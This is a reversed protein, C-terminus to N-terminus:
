PPLGLHLIFIYVLLVPELPFKQAMSRCLLTRHPKNTCQHYLLIWPPCPSCDLQSEIMGASGAPCPLPTTCGELCYFGLLLFLMTCLKIILVMILLKKYALKFKWFCRQIVIIYVFVNLKTTIFIMISFLHCYYFLLTLAFYLYPSLKIWSM